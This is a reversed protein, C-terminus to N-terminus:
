ARGLRNLAVVDQPEQLLIQANIAIAHESDTAAAALARLEDLQEPLQARHKAIREDQDAKRSEIAAIHPALRKRARTRDADTFLHAYPKSPDAVLAECALDLSDAEALREYGVSPPKNVYHSVYEAVALGGKDMAAQLGRKYYSPTYPNGATDKIGRPGMQDIQWRLDRTLAVIADQDNMTQDDTTSGLPM